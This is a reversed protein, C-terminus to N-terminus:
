VESLADTFTSIFHRTLVNTASACAITFVFMNIFNYFLVGVKFIIVIM